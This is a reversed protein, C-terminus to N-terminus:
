SLTAIRHCEVIKGMELGIKVDMVNVNEAEGKIKMVVGNIYLGTKFQVRPEMNGNESEVALEWLLQASDKGGNYGVCMSIDKDKINEM